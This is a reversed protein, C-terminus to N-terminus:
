IGGAAIYCGVAHRYKEYVTERESLDGLWEVELPEQDFPALRRAARRIIKTCVRDASVCIDHALINTLLGAAFAFVSAAINTILDM